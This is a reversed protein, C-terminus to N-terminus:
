TETEMEDFTRQLDDLRHKSRSSSEPLQSVGLEALRREYVDCLNKYYLLDKKLEWLQEALRMYEAKAEDRLAIADDADAEATNKAASALRMQDIANLLALVTKTSQNIGPYQKDALRVLEDAIAATEMIYAADKDAKLQYTMTGIKVTITEGGHM